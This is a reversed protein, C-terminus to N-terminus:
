STIYKSIIIKQMDEVGEVCPGFAADRYIRSVKYDNMLGYSGHLQLATRAGESAANCVFTKTLASEMAMRELEDGCHDAEYGLRYTMWKATEYNIKLDAIRLQIAQFKTIPDGRHTKEKVYNLTEDYAALLNGLATGCMGIKGFAIMGQVIPYGSEGVLQDPTIKVNKLYIDYVPAGHEGMKSWRESLSFGDCDKDVIACVIGGNDLDKAFIMCPGPYNPSTIFRKTGNLVIYGDERKATTTLQKPDSGTSPETWAVSAIHEGSCCKPLYKKKQEESGYLRLIGASGTHAGILNAIAPCHRAIQELALVLSAYGADNGGYAEPFAMGFVGLEGLGELIEAPIVSTQDIQEAVPAIVQESFEKFAQQIMLQNKSLKFEM